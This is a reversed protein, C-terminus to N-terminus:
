TPKSRKLGSMLASIVVVLSSFLGLWFWGTLRTVALGEADHRERNLLYASILGSAVSVLAFVTPMKKWVRMLGLLIVVLMLLPVLWLMQDGGRALDYGSASDKVGGCSVQVWPLFFCVLVFVGASVTVRQAQDM